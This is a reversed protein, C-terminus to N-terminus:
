NSVVKNRGSEKAQYLAKDAKKYLTNFDLSTDAEVVGISCTVKIHQQLVQHLHNNIQNRVREALETAGNLDTFPMIIIFEEGGIRACIDVERSAIQLENAFAMLVEDGVDHGYRDNIQKFHDIDILMMSITINKRKSEASLQKVHIELGRRNLVRTLPDQLVQNRLRQQQDLVVYTLFSLCSLVYGAHSGTELINMVDSIDASQWLLLGGLLGCTAM